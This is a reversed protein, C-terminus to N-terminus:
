VAEDERIFCDCDVCYKHNGCPSRESSCGLLHLTGQVAGCVKCKKRNAHNIRKHHVGEILFYDFDQWLKKVLLEPTM